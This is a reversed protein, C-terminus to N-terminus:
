LPLEFNAYFEVDAREPVDLRDYAPRFGTPQLGFDAFVRMLADRRRSPYAIMVPVSTNFQTLVRVAQHLERLSTNVVPPDCVVLDFKQDLYTPRRLDWHRYGPLDSFRDDIDLVCVSRGRAALTMGVMPAGLLVPEEFCDVIDAVQGLTRSDFFYQENEHLEARKM